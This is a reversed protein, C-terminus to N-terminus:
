EIQKNNEKTQLVPFLTAVDSGRQSMDKMSEHATAPRITDDSNFIKQADAAWRAISKAFPLPPNNAV